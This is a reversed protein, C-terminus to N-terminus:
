GLIDLITNNIVMYDIKKVCGDKQIKCYNGHKSCPEKEPNFVLQVSQFHSM